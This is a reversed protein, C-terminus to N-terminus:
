VSKNLELLAKEFASKIKKLDAKTIEKLVFNEAKIKIKKDEGRYKAIGIRLRWFDETKLYKIISEIGKHGASGGGFSFKYKGLEIDVDDHVILIEEPRIKFYKSQKFAEKGIENMYFGSGSAQQLKLNPNTDLEKQYFRVFLDGVNHYTNAYEKGPNGLGLILKIKM